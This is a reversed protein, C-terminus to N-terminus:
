KLEGLEIWKEYVKHTYLHAMNRIDSHMWDDPLVGDPVERGAPWGNRLSPSMMDYNRSPVGPTTSEFLDIPNSGAAFTLAPLSEALAKSVEDYKAAEASGLAPDHFKENVFPEFFPKEELEALPIDSAAAPTIRQNIFGIIPYWVTQDWDNNFDWGGTGNHFLGGGSGLSFGKTMEQKVWSRIGGDTVINWTPPITGEGNKLVEEGTSHFNYANPLPGLRDRWTMKHRNDSAPFLEHWESCWLIEEYERWDPHSMEEYGLASAGSYAEIAAAADVMYYNAVNLGHDKIASSVVINGLSHAAICKDCGPLANVFDAVSKSTQFANHVNRWYDPTSSGIQSENGHWAVGTFMANSGSWFMRKFVEGNWGRSQEGSVNYGHVFIFHKGNRDADPWNEPESPMDGQTGGGLNESLFRARFMSEVDSVRVPMEYKAIVSGDQKRIELLIPNNTPFRSEFLMVGQDNKAANLMNTPIQLGFQPMVNTFRGAIDTARVINKLYSGVGNLDTPDSELVAEPYWIVNFTPAPQAIGEFFAQSEHKLYYKYETEPFVALVTKLDFHVPFFDVLDRVGDVGVNIGDRAEANQIDTGGETGSDDDTNSWFRWPKDNTIKGRDALNIVGDRNYDPIAEVPVLLGIKMPQNPKKIKAVALGEDNIGLLEAESYEEGLIDHLPEWRIGNWVNFSEDFIWGQRTVARLNKVGFRKTAAAFATGDQSIQLGPTGPRAVLTWEKEVGAITQQHVASLARAESLHATSYNQTTYSGNAEKKWYHSVSAIDSERDISAWHASINQEQGPLIQGDPGRSLREDMGTQMLWYKGIVLGDRVDSIMDEYNTPCEWPHFTDTLPDYLSASSTDTSQRLPVLDDHLHTVWLFDKERVNREKDIIVASYQFDPPTRRFLITGNPSHDVYHLEEPKTVPIEIVAFTPRGTKQWNVVSDAPDADVSNQLGDSDSDEEDDTVGNNDSDSNLPDTDMEIEISDPIGDGDTDASFPDTGLTYEESNTLGDLDSDLDTVAVQWFVNAPISNDPQTTNLGITHTNQTTTIPTGLNTWTVLDTSVKLQYNKGVLTPWTLTFAGPVLSPTIEVAVIGDPPNAQFPNTGAISEKANTWGDLDDDNTALFTNPFLNGNNHQKEWLDSLNNANTDLIAHTPHIFIIAALFALGRLTCLHSPNM